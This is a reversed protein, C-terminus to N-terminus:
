ISRIIRTRFAHFRDGQGVSDVRHDIGGGVRRRIRGRRSGCLRPNRLGRLPLRGDFRDSQEPWALVCKGRAIMKRPAALQLSQLLNRLDGIMKINQMAQRRDFHPKHQFRESRREHLDALNQRHTGLNQRLREAVLKGLQTGIGIRHRVTRHQLHKFVLVTPRDVLDEVMDIGRRKTRGAKCLHMTRLQRRAFVHGDLHLTRAHAFGHRLIHGDHTGDGFHGCPGHVACLHHVQGTHDFLQPVREFGFGVEQHFRPVQAFEVTEAFPVLVHIARLWVNVQAGLMHDHHVIHLADGDRM